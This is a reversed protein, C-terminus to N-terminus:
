PRAMSRAVPLALMHSIQSRTQRDTHSEASLAAFDGYKVHSTHFGVM